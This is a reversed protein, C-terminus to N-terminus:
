LGRHHEPAHARLRGAPQHRAQRLKGLAADVERPDLRSGALLAQAAVHEEDVHLAVLAVARHGSCQGPETPVHLPELDQAGVRRCLDLAAGPLSRRLSCGIAVDTVGSGNPDAGCGSCWRRPRATPRTSTNFAVYSGILTHVTRRATTRSSLSLASIISRASHSSCEAVEVIARGTTM